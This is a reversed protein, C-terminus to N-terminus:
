QQKNSLKHSTKYRKFYALSGGFSSRSSPVSQEIETYCM